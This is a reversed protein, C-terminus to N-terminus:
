GSKIGMSKPDNQLTRIDNETKKIEGNSDEPPERLGDKDGQSLFVIDGLPRTFEEACEDWSTKTVDEKFGCLFVEL